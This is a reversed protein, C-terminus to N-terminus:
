VNLSIDFTFHTANINAKLGFQKTKNDMREFLLVIM